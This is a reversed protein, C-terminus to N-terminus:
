SMDAIDGIDGDRDMDRVNYKTGMRGYYRNMYDNDGFKTHSTDYDDRSKGRYTNKAARAMRNHGSARGFPEVSLASNRSKPTKPKRTSYQVAQMGDGYDADSTHPKKNGDQKTRSSRSAVGHWATHSIADTNHKPLISKKEAPTLGRKIQAAISIARDADTTMKEVCKGKSRLVGNRIMQAHLSSTKDRDEALRLMPAIIDKNSFDARSGGKNSQAWAEVGEADMAIKDLRSTVGQKVLGTIMTGLSEDTDADMQAKDVLSGMKMLLGINRYQDSDKIDHDQELLEGLPRSRRNRLHGPVRGYEDVDFVHDSVSEWRMRNRRNSIEPTRYQAVSMDYLYDGLSIDAPADEDIMTLYSRGGAKEVVGAGGGMQSNLLQRSFIKRYNKVRRKIEQQDKALTYPNRGGSTISRDDSDTMGVRITDATRWTRDAIKFLEANMGDGGHEFEKDLDELFMEPHRVDPKGSRVGTFRANLRAVSDTTRKQEDELTPEDPRFDSLIDRHYSDLIQMHKGSSPTQDFKALLAEMPM